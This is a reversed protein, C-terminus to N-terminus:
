ELVFSWGFTEAETKHKTARVFQRFQGVTVATKDMAFPRGM